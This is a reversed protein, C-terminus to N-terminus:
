ARDLSIDQWSSPDDLPELHTFVNVRPVAARIEREIQELVNHGRQVSWAGPVLIHVSVYSRGASQRTRLAHYRVGNAGHQALIAVVAAQQELPIATDMLGLASRRVLEVGSWVINVAVALALLPDLRAWGTVSVAVLGGIVGVSTWVDTMLHRADAELVVSGHQRAARMLVRAVGWNIVSAVASVLVGSGIQALPEPDFLRPVAGVVIGVSAVLILAGEIGSAFYEAKDHGFAHEEDPPRAAIILTVLALTAALLNVLSELADSLLGISGTLWYAVVKLTVTAIAAGISLWAFRTLSSRNM